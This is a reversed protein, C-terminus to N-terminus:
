EAPERERAAEPFLVPLRYFRRLSYGAWASMGGVAGGLLATVALLWAPHPLHFILAIRASLLQHNRWDLVAACVLWSGAAGAFGASFATVASRPLWYGVAYAPVAPWWWPFLFGGGLSLAFILLASM